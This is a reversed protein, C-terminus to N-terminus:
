SSKTSQEGLVSYAFEVRLYPLPRSINTTDELKWEVMIAIHPKYITTRGLDRYEASVHVIPVTGNRNPCILAARTTPNAKMRGSNM